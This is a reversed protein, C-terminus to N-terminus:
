GSAVLRPIAHVGSTEQQPPEDGGGSDSIRGDHAPTTDLVTEHPGISDVRKPNMYRAFTQAYIEDVFQRVEQVSISTEEVVRACKADIVEKNVNFSGPEHELLLEIAFEVFVNTDRAVSSGPKTSVVIEPRKGLLRAEADRIPSSLAAHFVASVAPVVDHFKMGNAVAIRRMRKEIGFSDLKLTHSEHEVLLHAAFMKAIVHKARLMEQPDM